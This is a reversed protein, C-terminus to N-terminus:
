KKEEEDLATLDIGEPRLADRIGPQQVMNFLLLQRKQGETNALGTLYTRALTSRSKAAMDLLEEKSANLLKGTTSTSAGRVLASGQIRGVGYGAARAGQLIFGTPSMGVRSAIAGMNGALEERDYMQRLLGLEDAPGKLKELESQIKTANDFGYDKQAVKLFDDFARLQPKEADLESGSTRILRETLNKAARPVNQQFEGIDFKKNNRMEIPDDILRGLNANVFAQFENAQKQGAAFGPSDAQRTEIFGKLAILDRKLDPDKTENIRASLKNSFDQMEKMDIVAKEPVRVTEVAVDPGLTKTVLKSKGTVPDLIEGSVLKGGTPLNVERMLTKIEDSSKQMEELIDRSLAGAMQAYEKTGRKPISVGESLYPQLESRVNIPKTILDDTFPDKFSAVFVTRGTDPDVQPEIKRTGSFADDIKAGFSKLMSSQLDSRLNKSSEVAETPLFQVIKGLANKRIGEAQVEPAIDSQRNIYKNPNQYQDVLSLSSKDAYNTAKTQYKVRQNEIFTDAINKVGAQPNKRMDEITREAQKISSNKYSNFIKAQEKELDKTIQDKLMSIKKQMVVPNSVEIDKVGFDGFVKKIQDNLEKAYDDTLVAKNSKLNELFDVIEQTRLTVNDKKGQIIAEAWLKDKHVMPNIETKNVLEEVLKESDKLLRDGLDQGYKLSGFIPEALISEVEGATTAKSLKEMQTASADKTKSYIDKISRGIRSSQGLESIESALKPIAAGLIPSLVAGAGASGLADKIQESTEEEESYGLGAVGGVAAGSAALGALNKATKSAGALAKSGSVAGKVLGAGPVPVLFGGVLESLLATTPNQEKALENRARVQALNEEYDGPLLKAEAEDAFGLSGGQAAFRAATELLSVDEDKTPAPAAASLLPSFGDQQAKPLDSVSVRFSETGNSVVPLFGDREAESIKSEDVEFETGSEDRVKFTRM